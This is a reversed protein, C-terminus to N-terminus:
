LNVNLTCSAKSIKWVVWLTNMIGEQNLKLGLALSLSFLHVSGSLCHPGLLPQICIIWWPPWLLFLFNYRNGYKSVTQHCLCRQRSGVRPDAGANRHFCVCVSFKRSSADCCKGEWQSPSPLSSSMNSLGGTGWFTQGLYWTREAPDRM